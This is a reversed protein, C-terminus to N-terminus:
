EAEKGEALENQLNLLHANGHDSIWWVNPWFQDKDMYAKVETAWQETECVLVKRGNQFWECFNETTLDGEEPEDPEETHYDLERGCDTCALTQNGEGPNWWEDSAFVPHVGNGENDTADERAWSRGEQQGFREIACDPCHYDAEYTYAIVDTANM